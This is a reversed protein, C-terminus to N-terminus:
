KCTPSPLPPRPFIILEDQLPSHIEVAKEESCGCRM